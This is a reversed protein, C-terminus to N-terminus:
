GPDRRGGHVMMENLEHSLYSAARDIEEESTVELWQVGRFSRFFTMSKRAFVRVDRITEGVAEEYSLEGELYQLMRRYGHARGATKSFGRDDRIAKVEDLWGAEFMGRARAEVRANLEERPWRIGTMVLRYDDRPERWSEAESALREGRRLVEIRKSDAAGIQEAAAPDRRALAAHLAALNRARLRDRLRIDPGPGRDLGYLLAKLYFPATVDLIPLAGRAVIEKLLPEIYDIFLAVSFEEHPEVLDLGHHRVRAREERTPKATGIDLGRYVKLADVSVIEGGARE